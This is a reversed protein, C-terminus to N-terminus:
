IKKVSLLLYVILFNQGNQSKKKALIQQARLTHDCSINRTKVTSLDHCFRRRNAKYLSVLCSKITDNSPYTVPFRENIKPFTEKSYRLKRKVFNYFFNGKLVTKLEIAFFSM